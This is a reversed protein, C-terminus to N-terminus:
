KSRWQVLSTLYLEVTLLGLLPGICFAAVVCVVAKPYTFPSALSIFLLLFIFSYGTGTWGGISWAQLRESPTSNQRATTM